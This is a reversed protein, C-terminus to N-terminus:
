QLCTFPRFTGPFGCAAADPSNPLARSAALFFPGTTASRAKSTKPSSAQFAPLSIRLDARDRLHSFPMMRQVEQLM